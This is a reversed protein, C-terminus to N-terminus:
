MKATGENQRHPQNDHGHRNQAHSHMLMNHRHTVSKTLKSTIGALREGRNTCIYM